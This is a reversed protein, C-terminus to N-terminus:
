SKIKIKRAKEPRAKEIRVRLIGDRYDAKASDAKVSHPLTLTREFPGTPRENRYYAVNGADQAQGPVHYREIHDGNAVRRLFFICYVAIICRPYM